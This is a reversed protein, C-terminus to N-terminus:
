VHIMCGRLVQFSELTQRYEPTSASEEKLQQITLELGDMWEIFQDCRFDNRVSVTVLVCYM